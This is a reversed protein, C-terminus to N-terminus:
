QPLLELFYVASKNGPKQFKQILKTHWNLPIDTKQSLVIYVFHDKLQQRADEVDKDTLPWRGWVSIHEQDTRKKLSELSDSTMGFNGEALLIVPKEVSKQRSYAIIEKVGWGAPWDELYQSRDISVLPIDKPSFVITYDFFAVSVFFLVCLILLTTKNKQVSFLYAAAISLLSPFFIIYRPYLVISLFCVIVFPVVIWISLYLGIKRQHKFLLFLGALGLIPLVIASEQLVYQPVLVINRFFYQFPTHLFDPFTMVFTANKQEILSIYPSLRQVNYLVLAIFSSIAL